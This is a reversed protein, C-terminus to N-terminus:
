NESKEKEAMMKKHIVLESIETDLLFRKAELNLGSYLTVFGDRIPLKIPESKLFDTACIRTLIATAIIFRGIM